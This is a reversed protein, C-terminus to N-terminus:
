KKCRCPASTVNSSVGGGGAGGTVTLNFSINSGASITSGGTAGAQGSTATIQGLQPFIYNTYSWSTGAAGATGALSSTGVGGGTPAVTGSAMLTGGSTSGSYVSVYSIEGSGGAGNATGGVGGSGVQVYLIDPLMCASFLGNSIASSGGGGGGGGTNSVATFGAGGGGGGGLVYFYVFKSNNPKQWIQWSTSGTSNKYFTRINLSNDILGFTDIM